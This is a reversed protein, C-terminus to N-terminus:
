YMYTNLRHVADHVTSPFKRDVEQRSEHGPLRNCLAPSGAGPVGKGSSKSNFSKSCNGHYSRGMTRLEGRGRRTTSYFEVESTGKLTNKGLRPELRFAIQLFSLENGAVLPYLLIYFYMYKIAPRTVSVSLVFM